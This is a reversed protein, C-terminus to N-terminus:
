KKSLSCKEIAVLATMLKTTSAPYIKKDPNQSYLIKGSKADMVIYAHASVIPKPSAAEAKSILGIPSFCLIMALLLCIVKNFKKM